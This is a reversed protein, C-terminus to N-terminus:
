ATTSTGRFRGEAVEEGLQPEHRCRNRVNVKRTASAGVAAGRRRCVRLLKAQLSLPMEGVEGFLTGGDAFRSCGRRTRPPARARGRKHGFLESELLNDPFAACTQSRFSDRRQSRYHIASAFLEKGTGTQRGYCQFARPRGGEGAAAASRGDQREHAVIRLQDVATCSAAVCSRTRKACHEEALLLRQILRAHRGRAVRQTALVGLADVDRRDFMAPADRNDVQRVHGGIEDRRGCPVGITSRISAGSSRNPASRRARRDSGAGGRPARAGEADRQADTAGPGRCGDSGASASLVRTVVPVLVSEEAASADSLAVTAHTARPALRLAAEAVRPSSQRWRSPEGSRASCANWLAPRPPRQFGQFAELSRHVVVQSRAAGRRPDCAAPLPEGKM